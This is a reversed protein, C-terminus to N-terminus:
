DKDGFKAVQAALMSLGIIKQSRDNSGAIIRRAEAVIKQREEDSLEKTGLTMVDNMAKAEESAKTGAVAVSHAEGRVTYVPPPAKPSANNGPAALKYKARIQIARSPLFKEIRSAIREASDEGADTDLAERALMEAIDRLESDTY